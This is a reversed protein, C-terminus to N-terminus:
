IYGVPQPTPGAAPVVGGRLARPGPKGAVASRLVAPFLDSEEEAHHELVAGKFLAV